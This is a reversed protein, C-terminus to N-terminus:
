ETWGGYYRDFALLDEVTLPIQTVQNGVNVAERNEWWHGILLLMAQKIREPVKAPDGYGAVFRVRVAGASQLTVSPWSKSRALVVRGPTEDPLVLYTSPDVTYTVGEANTFTIAEVSQLPPMPLAITGASPFADLVLEWTQTILARHLNGEAHGRAAAIRGQLYDEDAGTTFRVRLHSSVEGLGLPEAAPPIVLRLGM